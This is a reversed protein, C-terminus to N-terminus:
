TDVTMDWISTKNNKARPRQLVVCSKTYIWSDEIWLDACTTKLTDKFKDLEFIFFGNEVSLGVSDEM